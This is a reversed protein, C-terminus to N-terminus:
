NHPGDSVNMEGMDKEIEDAMTRLINPLEKTLPLGESQVSFGSGFIGDFVVIVVSKAEAMIRVITALDDYKGAGESM